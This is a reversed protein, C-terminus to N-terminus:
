KTLRITASDVPRYAFEEGLANARGAAWDEELEDEYTFDFGHYRHGSPFDLGYRLTYEDAGVTPEGEDEGGRPYESPSDYFEKEAKRWDVEKLVTQLEEKIIKKIVNGNIKM